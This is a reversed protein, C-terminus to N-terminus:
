LSLENMKHVPAWFLSYLSAVVGRGAAAQSLLVSSLSLIGEHRRRWVGTVSIAMGNKNKLKKM